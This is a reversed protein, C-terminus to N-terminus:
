AFWVPNVVIRTERGADRLIAAVERRVPENAVGVLQLVVPEDLGGVLVVHGRSTPAGPDLRWGDQTELEDLAPALEEIALVLYRRTAAARVSARPPATRSSSPATGRPRPASRPAPRVPAQRPSCVECDGLTLGHM